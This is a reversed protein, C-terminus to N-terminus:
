LVVPLILNRHIQIKVNKSLFPLDPFESRFSLLSFFKDRHETYWIMFAYQPLPPMAGSM